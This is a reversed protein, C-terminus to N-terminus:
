PTNIYINRKFFDDSNTKSGLLDFHDGFLYYDVDDIIQKLMIVKEHDGPSSETSESIHVIIPSSSSDNNFEFTQFFGQKGILTMDFAGSTTTGTKMVKIGKLFKDDSKELKFKTGGSDVPVLRINSFILTPSDATPTEYYYFDYRKNSITKGITQKTYDLRPTFTITEPNTMDLTGVLDEDTIVKGDSGGLGNYLITTGTPMVAVIKFFNTGVFSYPGTNGDAATTGTNLGSITVSSEAFNDTSASTNRLITKTSQGSKEIIHSVQIQTVGSEAFGSGNKWTLTFSVNKSLAIVDADTYPEITYPEITYPENGDPSFTRSINFDTISPLTPSSPGPDNKPKEEEPRTNFYIVVAIIVVVLTFLVGLLLGSSTKM